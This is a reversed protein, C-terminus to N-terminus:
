KLRLLLNNWDFDESLWSITYIINKKKNKKKNYKLYKYNISLVIRWIPERWTSRAYLNRLGARGIGSLRTLV